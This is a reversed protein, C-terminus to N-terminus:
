AYVSAIILMERNKNNNTIREKLMGIDLNSLNKDLIRCTLIVFNERYNSDSIRLMDIINKEFIYDSAIEDITKLLGENNDNNGNTRNYSLSNGM